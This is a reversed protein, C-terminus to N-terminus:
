RRKLCCGNLKYQATFGRFSFKSTKWKGNASVTVTFQTSRSGDRRGMRCRWKTDAKAAACSATGGSGGHGRRFVQVLGRQVDRARFTAAWASPAAASLAVVAALLIVVSRKM